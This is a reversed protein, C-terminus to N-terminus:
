TKKTLNHKIEKLLPLIEALQKQTLRSRMNALDGIIRDAIDSDKKYPHVEEDWTEITTQYGYDPDGVQRRTNYDWRKGDDTTLSKPNLRKVTVVKIYIEERYSIIAAKDSVKADKLPKTM